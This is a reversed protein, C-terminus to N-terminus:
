EFFEPHLFILTNMFAHNELFEIHGARGIWNDFNNSPLYFDVDIRHIRERGKLINKAMKRLYKGKERFKLLKSHFEIRASYHPSYLDQPSSIVVMHNFWECGKENSLKYIMCDEIKVSDAFSLQKLSESKKFKNLIWLGARILKSCGEIIGLHPSSLSLFLHMKDSFEELHLLAARIILGGLSHGIFSIRGLTIIKNDKLYDKVEKSLREGLIYISIDTDQENYSSCLYMNNPFNAYLMNKIIKMDNSSGQFGHVLVVLHSSSDKRRLDRVFTSSTGGFLEMPGSPLTRDHICFEEILIPQTSTDIIFNMEKIANTSVENNSKRKTAALEKSSEAKNSDTTIGIDSSRIVRRILSISLMQRKEMNYKEKLFNFLSEICNPIIEQLQQWLQFVQGSVLNLENMICAAIKKSDHSAVRQSFRHVIGPNEENISDDSENIASTPISEICFEATRQMLFQNGPLNLVPPVYYLQLMHRQPETLCKRIITLYYDRLKGYTKSLPKMFSMYTDDTQSSGVYERGTNKHSKFLTLALSESINKPKSLFFPRFKYDLLLYHVMSTVICFHFDDFIIPLYSSKFTTPYSMMFEAKSVIEFHINSQVIEKAEEPTVKGNLDTFMLEAKLTFFGENVTKEVEIESRIYYVEDIRVKEDFYRVLFSKTEIYSEELNSKSINHPDIINQSGYKSAMNYPYSTISGKQISIRIKYLGQHYLDVNRFHDLHISFEIISRLSM